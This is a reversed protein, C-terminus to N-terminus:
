IINVACVMAIFLAIRNNNYYYYYTSSGHQPDFSVTRPELTCVIETSMAGERGSFHIRSTLARSWSPHAARCRSRLSLTHPTVRTHIIIYIYIYQVNYMTMNYVRPSRALILTCLYFLFSLFYALLSLPCTMDCQILPRLIFSVSHRHICEAVILIRGM